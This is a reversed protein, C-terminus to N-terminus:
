DGQMYVLPLEDVISQDVDFLVKMYVKGNDTKEHLVIEDEIIADIGAKELINAKAQLIAVSKAEDLSLKRELTATKLMTQKMRGIPVTWNRWAIREEDNIIEHTDYPTQGFGSVKLLRSGFTLFWSTQQEGTYVKMKHILPVTLNYEYWVKGRVVGSAVVAKKNDEAGILGSILMQGKKVRSHKSVTAKGTEAVIQTVVADAKAVLHRPSQLTRDKPITQEVVQITIKTGKKEVGVFNTGALRSTMRGSINKMDDLKYSWQFLKIGEAKAAEAIESETLRENGVIEISWILSSLVFLIIFFLALGIAFGIRRRARVMFFPFGEKKHITMRCGTRRLIPKIRFFEAISLECVLQGDTSWRIEELHIAEKLAENIFLEPAQGTVKITVKGRFWSPNMWKMM